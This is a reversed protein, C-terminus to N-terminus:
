QFLANVRAAITSLTGLMFGPALMTQGELHSARNRLKRTNDWWDADAKSLVGAKKLRDINESFSFPALLGNKKSKAAALGIAKCKAALAAEAVRQCHEGALTSLPYFLYGYVFLSRAREFHDRVEEPVKLELKPRLVAGLRLEPTIEPFYHPLDPALWNELTIQKYGFQLPITDKM